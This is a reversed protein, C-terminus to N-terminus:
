LKYRRGGVDKYVKTSPGGYTHISVHGRIIIRIALEIRKWVSFKSAQFYWQQEDDHWFEIRLM